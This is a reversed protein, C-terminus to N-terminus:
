NLQISVNGGRVSFRNTSLSSRTWSVLLCQSHMLWGNSESRLSFSCRLLAVFHRRLPTSQVGERRARLKDFRPSDCCPCRPSAPPRAGVTEEHILFKTNVKEKQLLIAV